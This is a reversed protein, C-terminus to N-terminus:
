KQQHKSSLTTWNKFQNIYIQKTSHILFNIYYHICHATTLHIFYTYKNYKQTYNYTPIIVQTYNLKINTYITKVIYHSTNYKLQILWMTCNTIVLKIFIAISKWAKLSEFFYFSFWNFSTVKYITNETKQGAKLFFWIIM